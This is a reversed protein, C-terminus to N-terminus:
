AALLQEKALKWVPVGTLELFALMPTVLQPTKTVLWRTAWKGELERKM